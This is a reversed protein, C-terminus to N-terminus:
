VAITDNTQQSQKAPMVEMTAMFLEDGPLFLTIFQSVQTKTKAGRLPM